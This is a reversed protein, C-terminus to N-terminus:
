VHARGIELPQLQGDWVTWLLLLDRSGDNGGQTVVASIVDLGHPGLPVLDIHKIDAPRKVPLTVFAFRDTLVGIVTGGAVLREKGKRDPDLDALTDLRLDAKKLRAQRLFDELLDKRDGLEITAALEIETDDGGTARDAYIPLACTQVGTM